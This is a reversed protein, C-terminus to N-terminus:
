LVKAILFNCSMILREQSDRDLAFPSQQAEIKLYLTSTLTQNEVSALSKMVDVALAEATAYTAARVITQLGQNELPPYSTGFTNTPATGATQVLGVCTDPSEPLRGLFLNTGLTLDATSISAAALYTGVDTLMSM